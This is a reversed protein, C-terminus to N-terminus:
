VIIQMLTDSEKTSRESFASALLAACAAGRASGERAAPRAPERGRRGPGGRAAARAGRSPRRPRGPRTRCRPPCLEGACFLVRPFLRHSKRDAPAGGPQPAPPWTAPLRTGAGPRSERAARAPQREGPCPGSREWVGEGFNLFSSLHIAAAASPHASAPPSQVRRGPFGQRAGGPMGRPARLRLCSRPAGSTGAPAFVCGTPNVVAVLHGNFGVPTLLRPADAFGARQRDKHKPM